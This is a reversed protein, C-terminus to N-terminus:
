FETIRHFQPEKINQRYENPTCGMVRHFVKGFYSNSSFGCAESVTIISDKTELLLQTAKRIRFDTLYSFPSMHLNLKFCRLCERKSVNASNGIDEVDIKNMYNFEVFTMMTKIRGNLSVSRKVSPELEDKHEKLLYLWLESILNRIILEYGVDGLLYSQYAREMGAILNQQKQDNAKFLVGQMLSSELVPSIYKSKFISGEAGELLEKRFQQTHYLVEAKDSVKEVMHLRGANIFVAEGEHLIFEQNPLSFRCRGKLVNCFEFEQHWHWPVTEMISIRFNGKQSEPNNQLYTDWHDQSSESYGRVKLVGSVTFYPFGSETNDFYEQQASNVLIQTQLNMCYEEEGCM